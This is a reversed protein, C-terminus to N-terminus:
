IFYFCSNVYRFNTIVEEAVNTAAASANSGKTQFLMSLKGIKFLLSFLFSACILLIGSYEGQAAIAIALVPATSLM